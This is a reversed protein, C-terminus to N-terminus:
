RVVSFVTPKCVGRPVYILFGSTVLLVVRCLRSAYLHTLSYFRFCSSGNSRRSVEYSKDYGTFATTVVWSAHEKYSNSRQKRTRGSAPLGASADMVPANTRTDFVKVAGDSFGAVLLNPGAGYAGSMAKGDEFLESSWATTLTTICAESETKMEHSCKETHMDWSRIRDCNGAALLQGSYQQWDLILGSRSTDPLLNPLAYFASMLSAQNAGEAKSFPIGGWARVSGDDCGAVFISNSDANMWCTSTFRSKKPNGNRIAFEKTLRRSDWVSIGSQGDCIVLIDEYPHFRLLSTSSASTNRLLGTQKLELTNKKRALKEEALNIASADEELYLEDNLTEKTTKPAKPALCAYYDAIKACYTKVSNNRRLLYAKLAGHPSLPDMSDYVHDAKENSFFSDRKWEFFESKPLTYEMKGIEKPLVASDRNGTMVAAMSLPRGLSVGFESSIRRLPLHEDQQSSVRLPGDGRISSGAASMAPSLFRSLDHESTSLIGDSRGLGLPRSPSQGRRNSNLKARLINEHVYSIISNAASVVAPHADTHQTRRLTKWIIRFKDAAENDLNVPFPFQVNRSEEESSVRGKAGDDDDSLTMEESAALFAPLYKDLMGALVVVAEYRVMPSVDNLAELTATSLVLDLVLRRRDEFVSLRNMMSPDGHTQQMPQRTLNSQTTTQPRGQLSGGSMGIAPGPLAHTPANQSYQLTPVRLPQGPNPMPNQVMGVPLQQPQQWAISGGGPHVFNPQLRGPFGSGAGAAIQPPIVMPQQPMLRNGQVGTPVPAASNFSTSSQKGTLLQNADPLPPLSLLCGITFCAAARVDPSDDQLRSFLRLHVGSALAETQTTVNGKFLNGLCLCLWLRFKPPVREEALTVKNQYDPDLSADSSSEVSSLLACCTGHLNQRMCAVQGQAYGVCTASLIFAAMIRQEAAELPNLPLNMTAKNLGWTLHQVFHPLAGDKVLDVQCSPDFSLIKAWIGVLNQKYEPSQLLKMVYPFIGLSLALNVAWPGLDLFQRLLTLARVRHAQSLLVQLVVPLQEPSHLPENPGSSKEISAFELWIEFATLQESFFPSTVSSAPGMAVPQQAVKTTSKGSNEEDGESEADPQMTVLVHNGLIGDRMLGCLCTECALDWAQWLPHDCVGPPLPPYSQPSCNLSRLIRDALLFNRFMSAVLLDQRFLRQFLPKPLINWAISDTVSTFIWNLEGLPTKRDNARGPIADVVDPHLGGMSQPNRRVFWRLAMKIPTTLCSTFIDAPYDPHMPLWEQDSTPCLVITDRVWLSAATEMSDGGALPISPNPTQPPTADSSELPATLFPMLIGASSCDLVVISPKGIWQRLDTVCLPIYQTHNKDFVWIEGNATPRPVGHGNYHLLIRENRAQRRLGLCLARVDEVTPDLARRYKLPKAARQQQWQAYQHELREGIKEKAKARSISSPDMWCQLKACPHPKTIDPPDTGVNLAMVLGVGVTKMRDKLRWTPMIEPVVGKLPKPLNQNQKKEEEKEVRPRPTQAGRLINFSSVRQLVSGAAADADGNGSEASGQAQASTAGESIGSGRVRVKVKASSSEEKEENPSLYPPLEGENFFDNMM